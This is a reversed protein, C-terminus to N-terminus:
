VTITIKAQAHHDIFYRLADPMEGLPFNRDIAPTVQGSEILGRLTDLSETLPAVAFTRLNQGILPSLALARLMRPLPGLIRGGTGASLVLTGRPTLARRLATLSHNGINDLILDYQLGNRTFDEHTYDVIHDAGLSSLLNANRPSCVATVTAGFAKAIQVAFTGVGGSAGNILVNQGPQLRGGERLGQLAARAAVPVAAAQEFSLNAPKAALHSEPACTFEAFSGGDVEGYVADGPRFRTVGAGVAEVTGAVDRGRVISRPARLGFALRAILPRGTTYIWDAYNVSAARVRVLVEGDRVEPRAIHELQLADARGYRRQVIAQMTTTTQEAHM